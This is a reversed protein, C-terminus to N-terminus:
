TTAVEDRRELKMQSSKDANWRSKWMVLRDSNGHCNNLGTGNWTAAM